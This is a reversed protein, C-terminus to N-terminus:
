NGFCEKIIEDEEISKQKYYETSRVEDTLGYGWYPPYLKEDSSIDVMKLVIMKENRLANVYKKVKYKSTKLFEAMNVINICGIPNMIDLDIKVLLSYVDDKSIKKYKLTNM